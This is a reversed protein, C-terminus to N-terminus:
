QPLKTTASDVVMSVHCRTLDVLLYESFLLTLLIYLNEERIQVRCPHIRISDLETM